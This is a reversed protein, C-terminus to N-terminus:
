ALPSPASAWLAPLRWWEAESRLAQEGRFRTGWGCGRGGPRVCRGKQLQLVKDRLSEDLQDLYPTIDVPEEVVTEKIPHFRFERKKGAPLPAPCFSSGLAQHGSRGGPHSGALGSAVDGRDRKSPAGRLARRGPMGEVGRCCLGSVSPLHGPSVCGSGEPSRDEGKSNLDEEDDSFAAEANDYCSEDKDSMHNDMEM